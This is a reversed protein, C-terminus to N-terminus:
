PSVSQVLDGILRAYDQPRCASLEGHHLGPLISLTSGPLMTHLRRASRRIAPIEKQGAVIHVKAQAASLAAPARYRANAQLFATMSERTIRCTDRYYEDYLHAPLGLSRFQLRAFWPQRILGYSMALMPATLAATVPMPQVLASEILACRCINGQQALMETLIQGGLSVGAICAVPGRFVHHLWRILEGANDAITTFPRSSGAHGDLVPLVVHYQGSLLQAADKMHWWSLGGGHLLVIVEAHERGYEVAYM